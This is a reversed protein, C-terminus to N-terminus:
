LCNNKEERITWDCVSLIPDFYLGEPCPMLVPHGTECSFYTKCNAPNPLLTVNQGNQPPCEKVAAVQAVAIAMVAITVLISVFIFGRMTNLKEPQTRLAVLSNHCNHSHITM